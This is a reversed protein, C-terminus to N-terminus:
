KVGLMREMEKLFGVNSVGNQIDTVNHLLRIDRLLPCELLCHELTQVGTNCSCLREERAVKPNRRGTELKLNHSGTRYRIIYVRQFELVNEYKPKSLDTNIRLYAGLRSDVDTNFDNQIKEKWIRTFDDRM